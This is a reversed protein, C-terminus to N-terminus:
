DGKLVFANTGCNLCEVADAPWPGSLTFEGKGPVGYTGPDNGLLVAEIAKSMVNELNADDPCDIVITTKM